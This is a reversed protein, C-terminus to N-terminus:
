PMQGTAVDAPVKAATSTGDCLATWKATCQNLWHHRVKKGGNQLLRRRGKGSEAIMDVDIPLAITVPGSPSVGRFSAALVVRSALVTTNEADAKFPAKSSSTIYLLVSADPDASSCWGADLVMTVGMGLDVTKPSNCSDIKILELALVGEPVDIFEVLNTASAAFPASTMTIGLTSTNASTLLTTGDPSSLELALVAATSGKAGSLYSVDQYGQKTAPTTCMLTSDSIWTTSSCKLQEAGLFVTPSSDLGGFNQGFITMTSGGKLSFVQAPNSNTVTPKDYTWAFLPSLEALPTGPAGVSVFNGTPHKVGPASGLVMSSSSIYELIPCDYGDITIGSGGLNAASPFSTGTVSIRRGGAQPGGFMNWGSLVPVDYSFVRTIGYEVGALHVRVDRSGVGPHMVCTLSTPSVWSTQNCRTAGVKAFLASGPDSQGLLTGTVTITQFGSSPGNMSGDLALPNPGDYVFGDVHTAICKGANGTCVTQGQLLVATVDVKGFGQPLTCELSSDSIWQQASCASTGVTITFGSPASGGFSSGTLTVTYGGTQPGNKKESSLIGPDDYTYLALHTGGGTNMSQLVAVSKAVGRGVPSRAVMTSDSTWVVPSAKLDGLWLTQTYQHSGFNKGHVTVSSASGAAGNQPRMHTVTPTDYSIARTLTGRKSAVTVTADHSDLFGKPVTCRLTSDSVWVTTVCATGGVAAKGQYDATGFNYGLIPIVMPGYSPANSIKRPGQYYGTFIVVPSDYTFALTLTGIDEPKGDKVHVTVAANEGAGAPVRCQLMTDSTWQDLRCVGGGKASIISAEVRVVGLANLDSGFNKGTITAIALGMAPGNGVNVSRIAPKDYSYSKSLTSTKALIAVEVDHGSGVNIPVQCEISSDSQWTTKACTKGGIKLRPSYDATGYNKGVVTITSGTAPGNGARVETIVPPDYDYAM